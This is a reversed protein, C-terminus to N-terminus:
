LTDGTHGAIGNVALNGDRLVTARQTRSHVKRPKRGQSTKGAAAPGYQRRTEMDTAWTVGVPNRVREVSERRYGIPSTEDRDRGQPEGKSAKSRCHHRVCNGM